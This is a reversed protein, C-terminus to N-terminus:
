HFSTPALLYHPYNFQPMSIGTKALSPGSLPLGYETTFVQAGLSLAPASPKSLFTKCCHVSLVCVGPAPQCSISQGHMLRECWTSVDRAWGDRAVKCPCLCCETNEMSIRFFCWSSVLKNFTETSFAWSSFSVSFQQQDLNESPDYSSTHGSEALSFNLGLKASSM